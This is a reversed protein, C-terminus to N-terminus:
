RMNRLTEVKEGFDKELLADFTSKKRVKSDMLCIPDVELKGLREFLEKSSALNPYFDYLLMKRQNSREDEDKISEVQNWRRNYASLSQLLGMDGMIRTRLQVMDQQTYTFNRSKRDLLTILEKQADKVEDKTYDGTIDSM